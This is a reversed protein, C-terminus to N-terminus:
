QKKSRLTLKRQGNFVRLNKNESNKATQVFGFGNLPNYQEIRTHRLYDRGVCVRM